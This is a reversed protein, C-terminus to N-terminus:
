LDALADIAASRATDCAARRETERMGRDGAALQFRLVYLGVRRDYPLVDNVDRRLEAFAESARAWGFTAEEFLQWAEDRRGGRLMGDGLRATKSAEAYLDLGQNLRHQLANLM